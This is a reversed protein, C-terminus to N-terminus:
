ASPRSSALGAIRSPLKRSVCGVEVRSQITQKSSERTTLALRPLMQNPNVAGAIADRM